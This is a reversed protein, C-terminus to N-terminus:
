FTRPAPQSATSRSTDSVSDPDAGSSLVLRLSSGRTLLTGPMPDTRLVHGVAVKGSTVYESGSVLLGAEQVHTLAETSDQGQLDPVPVTTAGASLWIRVVHGKKVSDGAAPRQLAVLDPGIRDARRREPDITPELGLDVLKRTAQDGSLGSIDPVVVVAWGSRAVHPMVVSDMVVWGIACLSAVTAAALAIHILVQRWPPINL